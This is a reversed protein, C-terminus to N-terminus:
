TAVAQTLASVSLGRQAADDNADMDARSADDEAYEKENKSVTAPLYPLTSYM